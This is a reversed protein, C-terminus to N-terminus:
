WEDITIISIFEEFSGALEMMIAPLQEKSPNFKSIAIEFSDEPMQEKTPNAECFYIKGFSDQRLSIVIEGEEPTIFPITNEPFAVGSRSEHNLFLCDVPLFIDFEIQERTGFPEDLKIVFQCDPNTLKLGNFKHYFKYFDSPSKLSNKELFSDLEITSPKQYYGKLEDESSLMINELDM